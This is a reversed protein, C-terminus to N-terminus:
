ELEGGSEISYKQYLYEEVDERTFIKKAHAVLIHDFKLKLLEPLSKEVRKPDEAFIPAPLNLKKKEEVFLDGAILVDHDRHVSKMALVLISGATHGPFHIVKVHGPFEEGGKLLRDPNFPAYEFVKKSVSFVEPSTLYHLDAEHICVECGFHEKVFDVNGVHDPHGHTLIVYDVRPIRSLRKMNGKDRLGTDILISAKDNMILYAYNVGLNIRYIDDMVHELYSRGFM